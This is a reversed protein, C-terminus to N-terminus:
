QLSVPVPIFSPWTFDNFAIEKAPSVVHCLNLLIEEEVGFRGSFLVHIVGRKLSLQGFFTALMHLDLIFSSFRDVTTNFHHLKMSLKLPYISQSTIPLIM